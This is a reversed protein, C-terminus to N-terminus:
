ARELQTVLTNTDTIWIQGGFREFIAQAADQGAQGKSSNCADMPVIVCYGRSVADIATALVCYDTEVGCLILFTTNRDRLIQEFPDAYFASATTKFLTTTLPSLLDADFDSIIEGQTTDMHDLTVGISHHYYNKWNGADDQWDVPPEFRSFITKARTTARILKHINPVISTLNPANWPSKPDCMFFKQMDIVGLASHTPTIEKSWPPTYPM